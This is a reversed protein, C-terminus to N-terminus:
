VRPHAHPRIYLSHPRRRAQGRCRGRRLWARTRRNHRARRRKVDTNIGSLSWLLAADHEQSGHRHSTGTQRRHEAHEVTTHEVIGTQLAEDHSRRSRAFADDAIQSQQGVRDVILQTLATTVLESFILLFLLLPCLAAFVFHGRGGGSRGTLRMNMMGPLLVPVPMRCFMMSFPPCPSMKSLSASLINILWFVAAEQSSLYRRAPATFFVSLRPTYMIFRERVRGRTHSFFLSCM